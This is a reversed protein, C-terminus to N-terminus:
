NGSRARGQRLAAPSLVGCREAWSEYLAALERVTGSRRSALDNLEARDQSLDYLAWPKGNDAVLKWDGKRVARNGQHEWFLAPHPEREKGQLTPVLSRGEVATVPHGNFAKPYEAGALDLCTPLVDIVHSVEDSVTGPPVRGPWHAILPSAIGGEHVNQKFQRFPTNSANAWPLEYALFSEPTGPAAGPEGRNVSEACGGNDALFLILTNEFAGTEKLKAVLQGIGQDMRDIQAAYVAMRLDYDQKQEGSLTSWEPARADRPSLPISADLVGLEIMRRRRQERLADWGAMYKGKYRAIDPQLAHLPWHPATYAVYLFFPEPKRAYEDVYKVAQTTFADTMYFNPDTTPDAPQEDIAFRRGKDLKFYNSAGSVLGYFREFGRDMPWHDPDEGVHWKGSMLARYGAPRIAEAITVSSHNLYGQYSPVGRDQIMHGVGAQHAYLGTLLSARTPCCRSTNYFQTFRMGNRALADLNPTAIESGYCGIDSYGMDDALIVILNPRKRDQAQATAVMLLLPVFALHRVTSM